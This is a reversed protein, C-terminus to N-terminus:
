DDLRRTPKWTKSGQIQALQRTKQSEIMAESPAEDMGRRSMQSGQGGSGSLNILGMLETQESQEGVNDEDTEDVDAIMVDSGNRGDRGTMRDVILMGDGNDGQGDGTLDTAVKMFISPDRAVLNSKETMHAKLKGGIDEIGEDAQEALRRATEGTVFKLQGNNLCRHIENSKALKILPISSLNSAVKSRVAIAVDEIFLQGVTSIVYTPKGLKYRELEQAEQRTMKKSTDIEPLQQAAKDLREKFEEYTMITDERVQPKQVVREQPREDSMGEQVPQGSQLAQLQKMMAMMQNQLVDMQSPQRKEPVRAPEQREATRVQRQPQGGIFLTQVPTELKESVKEKVEEYEDEVHPLAPRRESQLESQREVVNTSSKLEQINEFSVNIALPSIAELMDASVGNKFELSVVASDSSPDEISLTISSGKKIFPILRKDVAVPILYTSM